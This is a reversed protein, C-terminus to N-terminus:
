RLMDLGARLWRRVTSADVGRRRAIESPLMGDFFRLLLASRYPEELQLLMEVLRRHTEAREVVESAVPPSDIPRAALRERRRRRGEEQRSRFVLNRLVRRLWSGAAGRAPPHMLARVVTEQVLDDACSADEVLGRALAKLGHVHALLADQDLPPAM